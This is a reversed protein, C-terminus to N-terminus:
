CDTTQCERLCAIWQYEGITTGRASIRVRVARLCFTNWRPTVHTARRRRMHRTDFHFGRLPHILRCAVVACLMLLRSPLWAALHIFVITAPSITAVPTASRAAHPKQLRADACKQREGVVRNGVYSVDGAERNSRKVTRENKGNGEGSKGQQAQKKRTDASVDGWVKTHRM